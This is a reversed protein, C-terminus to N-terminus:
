AAKKASITRLNPPETRGAAGQGGGQILELKPRERQKQILEQEKFFFYAEEQDYGAKSWGKKLASSM